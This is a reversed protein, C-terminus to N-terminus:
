EGLGHRAVFDREFQAADEEDPERGTLLQALHRCEHAIAGPIQKSRLSVNLFLRDPWNPCVYAQVGGRFLRVWIVRPTPIHLEESALAAAKEALGWYESPIEADPIIELDAPTM